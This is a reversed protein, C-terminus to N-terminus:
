PQHAQLTTGEAGASFYINMGAAGALLLMALAVLSLTLKGYSEVSANLSGIGKAMDVRFEHMEERTGESAASTRELHQALLRLVEADLGTTHNDQRPTM